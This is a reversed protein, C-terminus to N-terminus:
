RRYTEGHPSGGPETVAERVLRERTCIDEELKPPTPLRANEYARKRKLDERWEEIWRYLM